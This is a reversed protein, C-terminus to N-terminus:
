PTDVWHSFRRKSVTHLLILSLYLIHNQSFLILQLSNSMLSTVFSITSQKIYSQIQQIIHVSRKSIFSMLIMAANPWIYCHLYLHNDPIIHKCIPLEQSTDWKIFQTIKISFHHGLSQSTNILTWLSHGAPSCHNHQCSCKRTAPASSLLTPASYHLCWLICDWYLCSSVILICQLWEM